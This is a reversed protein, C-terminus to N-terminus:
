LAFLIILVVLLSIGLLMAILLYIGAPHALNLTWGQAPINKPVWIRTDRKSFYVATNRFGGWNADNDWEAQNSEAEADGRM